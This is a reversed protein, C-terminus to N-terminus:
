QIRYADGIQYPQSQSKRDRTTACRAHGAIRSAAYLDADPDSLTQHFENVSEFRKEIAMESKRNGETVADLATVLSSKNDEFRMSINALDHVNLLRLRHTDLLNDSTIQLSQQKDQQEERETLAAAVAQDM